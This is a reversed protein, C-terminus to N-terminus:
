RAKELKITIESQLNSETTRPRSEADARPLIDAQRMDRAGTLTSTDTGPHGQPIAVAESEDVPFPVSLGAEAALEAQRRGVAGRTPTAGGGAAARSVFVHRPKNSANYLEDLDISPVQRKKRRNNSLKSM